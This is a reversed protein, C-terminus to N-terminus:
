NRLIFVIDEKDRKLVILEKAKYESVSRNISAMASLIQKPAIGLERQLLKIPFRNVQPMRNKEQLLHILLKSSNSQNGYKDTISTNIGLRWDDRVRLYFTGNALLKFQHSKIMPYLLSTTSRQILFREYNFTIQTVAVSDITSGPIAFEALNDKLVQKGAIDIYDLIRQGANIVFELDKLKNIVRQTFVSDTVLVPSHHVFLPEEIQAQAGRLALKDQVRTPYEQLSGYYRYLKDVFHKQPSIIIVEKTELPLGLFSDISDAYESERLNMLEKISDLLNDLSISKTHLDPM